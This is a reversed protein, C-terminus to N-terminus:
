KLAGLTVTPLARGPRHFPLLRPTGPSECGALSSAADSLNHELAAYPFEQPCSTACMVCSALATCCPSAGEGLPQCEACM